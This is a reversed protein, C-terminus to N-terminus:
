RTTTHAFVKLDSFHTTAVVMVRQSLFYRLIARALASGEGPDTSTGLEDLLVLSQWSAGGIIRIGRTYDRIYISVTHIDRISGSRRACGDSGTISNGIGACYGRVREDYIGQIVKKAVDAPDVHKPDLSYCLREIRSTVKDFKVSERRGDRKIVLM